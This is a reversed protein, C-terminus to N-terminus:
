ETFFQGITQSFQVLKQWVEELGVGLFIQLILAIIAIGLATTISAKLVKISWTFILWAILIAAIVIILDMPTSM